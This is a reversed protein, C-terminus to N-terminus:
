RRHTTEGAFSCASAAGCSTSGRAASRPWILAAVQSPSRAAPSPMQTPRARHVSSHRLRAPPPRERAAATKHQRKKIVEEQRGHSDGVMFPTPYGGEEPLKRRSLKQQKCNIQTLPVVSLPQTFELQPQAGLPPHHIGSPFFLAFSLVHATCLCALSLLYSFIPYNPIEKNSKKKFM